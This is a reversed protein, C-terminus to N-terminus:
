EEATLFALETEWKTMDPEDAPDTLYYEIRAVWTMGDESAQWRIGNAEAWGFLGATAGALESPHGTHILTAYRGAPFVGSIVRDSGSFTTAVPWGVELELEREMDVVIYRFFPPGSPAVGQEQLFRLVEGNLPPAVIGLQQLPMRAHIAAYAQAERQELKPETTM